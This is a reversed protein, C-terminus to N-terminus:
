YRQRKPFKQDTSFFIKKPNKLFTMKPRKLAMKFKKQYGDFIPTVLIKLIKNRDIFYTLHHLKRMNPGRLFDNKVKKSGNQNKKTDM